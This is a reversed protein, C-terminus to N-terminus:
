EPKTYRIVLKLKKPDSSPLDTGYLVTGLPNPYAMAPLSVGSTPSGIPNAANPNSLYKFPNKLAYNAIVNISETIVLGLKVNKNTKDRVLNQIHNTLKIKYTTGRSNSNLKIIGGHIFKNFKPNSGSTFDSFYDLLPVKNDLDFLYIRRPEIEANMAGPTKDITFTLSADSILCKQDRFKQIENAATIDDNARGGFLSIVAASGNGGKLYLRQAGVTASNYSPLLKNAYNPNLNNTFTNVTNGSLNLVISKKIVKPDTASTKDQYVITIKGQAFNLRNLAGKASPDSPSPSVQFYLGRFYDRFILNNSLNTPNTRIINDRFYDKDLMMFLGPNLRERVTTTAPAGAADNKYFKIQTKKFEFNDNESLPGTNLRPSALSTSFDEDSFYKKNETLGSGPSSDLTELFFNSRYVDIKIKSNGILSDERFTTDGSTEDISVPTYFYPVHLYVSDVVISNAPNIFVPSTTALALQTIFNSTTKGFVANDYFGLTNVPLNNTQVPGTAENYAITTTISDTLLGYHDNDGLVDTGIQNFDKDCSSITVLCATLIVSKFLLNLKM